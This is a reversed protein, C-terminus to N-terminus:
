GTQDAPHLHSKSAAEATETAVAFWGPRARGIAEAAAKAGSTSPYLGFCTAGSGSMRAFAAGTQRLAALAEAIAPALGIAAAELDNRTAALWGVLASFDGARPLPPLPPNARAALAAFVAPTAVPVGPNVLVMPLRPFAPLPEVIEGVGRAVLAKATVCMPVDAGLGSGLAALDEMDLGLRWFRNLGRLAAAADSSGGGIGSAVPLNKELRIRVPADSADGGAQRLRDRAALVLNRGDTPVDQTFAGSVALADAAAPEFGLGDGFATFVVLSEILHYGDARRGTVHLALNIKAPADERLGARRVM